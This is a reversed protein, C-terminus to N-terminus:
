GAAGWPLRGLTKSVLNCFCYFEALFFPLTGEGAQLLQVQDGHPGLLLVECCLERQHEAAVQWLLHMTKVTKRNEPQNEPRNEPLVAKTKPNEPQRCLFSCVGGFPNSGLRAAANLVPARHGALVFYSLFPASSSSYFRVRGHQLHRREDEPKVHVERCGPAGCLFDIAKLVWFGRYGPGSGLFDLRLVRLGLFTL